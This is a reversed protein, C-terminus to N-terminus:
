VAFPWKFYAIFFPRGTLVRLEECGFSTDDSFRREMGLFHNITKRRFATTKASKKENPKTQNLKTFYLYWCFFFDTVDNVMLCYTNYMNMPPVIEKKKSNHWKQKQTKHLANPRDNRREGLELLMMFDLTQM